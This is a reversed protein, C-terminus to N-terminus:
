EKTIKYEKIKNYLTKYDIKLKRATKTKNWNCEELTKILLAREANSAAIKGIELLGIDNDISIFTKNKQLNPPLDEIKIEEESLLVAREIVNKLERVNGPWNYSILADLASNSIKVEKHQEKNFMDLFYKVLLPIDEKRERLPPLHITFANLRYYLDERFKKNKVAEEIDINTASIIRVDIKIPEKGGLREIKREELIRLLKQQTLLSLNGIEDLFLTGKEALEFKGIKRSIAGTFAGKEYGFLESEVLTEPLTACDIAIIPFERRDSKYHIAHAVLEKGTGSEGLILTNINSKAAKEIMKFVSKMQKSEGIIKIPYKEEIQNKLTDVQKALTQTKIFNKAIIVLKEKVIDKTLYDDAGAKIAEVASEITGYATLIVIPINKFKEKIKKLVEIGNMDPMVLDLFILDVVENEVIEIAKKGNAAQLVIYGEEKLMDSIIDRIPKEDDVVLIKAM